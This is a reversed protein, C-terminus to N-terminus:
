RLFLIALMFRNACRQQLAVSAKRFLHSNPDRSSAFRGQAFLRGRWIISASSARQFCLADRSATVASARKTTVHVCNRTPICARSCVTCLICCARLHAKRLAADRHPSRRPDALTEVKDLLAIGSLPDLDDRHSKTRSVKSQRAEFDCYHTHLEM